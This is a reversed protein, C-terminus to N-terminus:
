CGVAFPRLRLGARSANHQERVETRPRPRPQKRRRPPLRKRPAKWLRLGDIAFPTSLVLPEEGPLTAIALLRGLALGTDGVLGINESNDLFDIATDSINCGGPLPDMRTGNLIADIERGASVTVAIHAWEGGLTDWPYRVDCRYIDTADCKVYPSLCIRLLLTWGGMGADFVAALDINPTSLIYYEAGPSAERVRALETDMRLWMELVVGGDTQRLQADSPVFAFSAGLDLAEGEGVVGRIPRRSSANRPTACRATANRCRAMGPKGSHSYVQAPDGRRFSDFVATDFLACTRISDKVTTCM